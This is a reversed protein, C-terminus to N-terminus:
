VHEACAPPPLNEVHASLDCAECGLVPAQSDVGLEDRLAAVLSLQAQHLHRHGVGVRVLAGTGVDEIREAVGSGVVRRQRTREGIGLHLHDNV